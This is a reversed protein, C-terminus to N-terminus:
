CRSKKGAGFVDEGGEWNLRAIVESQIYANYIERYGEKQHLVTSSSPFYTLASINTFFAKSLTNNLITLVQDVERLGRQTSYSQEDINLMRQIELTNNGLIM